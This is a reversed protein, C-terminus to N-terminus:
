LVTTVTNVMEKKLDLYSHMKDVCILVKVNCAGLLKRFIYPIIGHIPDVSTWLDEQSTTLANDNFM